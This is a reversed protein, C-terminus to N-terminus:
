TPNRGLKLVMRRKSPLAPCIEAPQFGLKAYLAIAPGNAEDVLLDVQYAAGSIVAQLMAAAFGRRRFHPHVALSRVHTQPNLQVFAYGM